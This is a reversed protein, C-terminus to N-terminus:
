QAGMGTGRAWEEKAVRERERMMGVWEWAVEEAGSKAGRQESRRVQGGVLLGHGAIIGTVFSWAEGLQRWVSARAIGLACLNKWVGQLVAAKGMLAKVDMEGLERLMEQRSSHDSLGLFSPLCPLSPHHLLRHILHFTPPSPLLIPIIPLHLFGRPDKIVPPLPSPELSEYEDSDDESESESEESFSSGEEESIAPLAASVATESPTAQKSASTSPTTSSPSPLRSASILRNWYSCQSAFVLSNVAIVMDGETAEGARQRIALCMNPERGRTKAQWEPKRGDMIEPIALALTRTSFSSPSPHPIQPYPKYALTITSISPLLPLLKNLIYDVPVDRLGEQDVHEIPPIQPFPLKLPMRVQGVDGNAPDYRARKVREQMVKLDYAPDDLKLPPPRAKPKAKVRRQVKGSSSTSSSASALKARTVSTNRGRAYPKTSSVYRRPYSTHKPARGIGITGQQHKKPRVSVGSLSSRLSLSIADIDTLSLSTNEKNHAAISVM